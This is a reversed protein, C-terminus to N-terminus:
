PAETSGGYYRLLGDEGLADVIQMADRATFATGVLEGVDDANEACSDALWKQTAWAVSESVNSENLTSTAYM